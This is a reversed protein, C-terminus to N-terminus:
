LVLNCSFLEWNRKWGMWVQRTRPSAYAGLTTIETNDIHNRIKVITHKTSKQAVMANMGFHKMRLRGSSTRLINLNNVVEGM